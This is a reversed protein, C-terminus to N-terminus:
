SPATEEQNIIERIWSTKINAIYIYWNEPDGHSSLINYTEQFLPNGKFDTWKFLNKARDKPIKVTLRHDTRKYTLTTQTDWAQEFSPNVTLWQFGHAFYAFKGNIVIPTVGKTIGEKLIGALNHKSCFHFLRM